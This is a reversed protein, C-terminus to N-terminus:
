PALVSGGHPVYKAIIIRGIRIVQTGGLPQRVSGSIHMGKAPFWRVQVGDSFLLRAESRLELSPVGLLSADVSEPSVVFDHHRKRARM